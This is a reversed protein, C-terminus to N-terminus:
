APFCERRSDAGSCAAVNPRSPCTKVVDVGEEMIQSVFEDVIHEAPRLRAQECISESVREQLVNTFHRRLVEFALTDVIQEATGRHIRNSVGDEASRWAARIMQTVNRSCQSKEVNQKALSQQVGDQHFDKFVLEDVVDPSDVFLEVTRQWVRDQFVIKPVGVLQEQRQPVLDDLIQERGSQVTTQMFSKGSEWM